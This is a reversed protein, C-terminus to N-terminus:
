AGTYAAVTVTGDSNLTVSFAEGKLETTGKVSYPTVVFTTGVPVATIETTFLYEGGLNTALEDYVEDNDLTVRISSYVTTLESKVGKDGCTVYFGISERDLSYGTGVFRIDYRSADAANTKLQVGKFDPAENRELDELNVAYVPGMAFAVNNVKASVVLRVYDLETLTCGGDSTKVSFDDIRILYENWGTRISGYSTNLFNVEDDSLSANKYLKIASEEVDCAGSSTLEIEDGTNTTTNIKRTDSCYIWVYIYEKDSIDVPNELATGLGIAGAGTTVGSYVESTLQKAAGGDKVALEGDPLEPVDTSLPGGLPAYRDLDELDVAYVDTIAIMIKEKAKVYLGFYALSDFLCGEDASVYFDSKKVLFENWGSKVGGYDLALHSYDVSHENVDKAGWKGSDASAVEISFYNTDVKSIDSIYIAFLFYDKESADVAQTADTAGNNLSIGARSHGSGYKSKVYENNCLVRVASNTAKLAYNSYSTGYEYMDDDCITGGVDPIKPLAHDYGSGEEIVNIDELNVAHVSGLAYTAGGNTSTRQVMGVLCVATMDCGNNKTILLDSMKILYQNWGSVMAGYSDTINVKHKEPEGTSYKPLYSEADENSSSRIELQDGKNGASDNNVDSCYIWVLLYEKSSIDYTTDLTCRIAALKDAAVTKSTVTTKLAIASGGYKLSYKGVPITSVDDAAYAFVSCVSFLMAVTLLMVILKKM